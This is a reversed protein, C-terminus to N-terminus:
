RGITPMALCIRVRHLVRVAQDASGETRFRGHIGSADLSGSGICLNFFMRVKHYTWNLSSSNSFSRELIDPLIPIKRNWMTNLSLDSLRNFFKQDRQIKRQQGRGADRPMIIQIRRARSSSGFMSRGWWGDGDSELRSRTSSSPTRRAISRGFM